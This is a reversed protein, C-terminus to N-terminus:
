EEEKMARQTQIASLADIGTYKKLVDARDLDILENKIAFAVLGQQQEYSLKKMMEDLESIPAVTLLRRKQGDNLVIIEEPEKATEPELGLEIKVDMDDIYLMGQKLMYEFGPDFIAERLLDLDMPIEQGSRVWERRFNQAPLSVGVIHDVTSRVMVKKNDM